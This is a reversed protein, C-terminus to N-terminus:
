RARSGRAPSGRERGRTCRRLSRRIHLPPRASGRVSRRLRNQAPPCESPCRGFLAMINRTDQKDAEKWAELESIEHIIDAPYKQHQIDMTANQITEIIKLCILVEPIEKRVQEYKPLELVDDFRFPINQLDDLFKERLTSIWITYEYALMNKMFESTQSFLTSAEPYKELFKEFRQFFAITLEEKARDILFDSMGFAFSTVDLGSISALVSSLPKSLPQIKIVSSSSPPIVFNGIFPNKKYENSIIRYDQNNSNSYYKLILAVRCGPNDPENECQVTPSPNPFNKGGNNKLLKSLEIADYYPIQASVFSPIVILMLLLYKKM